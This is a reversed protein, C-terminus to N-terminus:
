DVGKADPLHNSQSTLSCVVASVARCQVACADTRKEREKKKRKEQTVHIQQGWSGLRGWFCAQNGRHGRCRFAWPDQFGCIPARRSQASKGGCLLGCRHAEKPIQKDRM